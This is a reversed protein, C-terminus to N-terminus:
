SLGFAPAFNNFDNNHLKIDPNPSNKGVFQARTLGGCSIGCLGAFPETAGGSPAGALGRREWPVGFWEWHIGYNLTLNRGAKWTDKFFWSAENTYWARDKMYVGQGWYSFIPDTPKIVDFAQTIRHVSGSLDTLLDRALTQNNGTLDPIAINDIDRVPVGGPGLEVMPTMHAENGSRSNAARWEAGVRFSHAGREWSVTDAFTYQPSISYRTSSRGTWSTFNAPFLRTVPRYPLGNLKPLIDFAAQGKEGVVGAPDEFERGVYHPDWTYLKTDKYGVRLENVVTPSFTSVLSTALVTPWRYHAGYYHGQGLDPWNPIGAQESNDINREWTYIFSFGHDPTFHHDLRANFQDRNVKDFTGQGDSVDLGYIRRTWRHGATNLGDGITYDNPPPMRSLLVNQIFGTPDYGPRFPDRNFVSFPTLDGTANAPRVPNGTFDVTPRLSIANQNDAGPFFRFIGQRAPATLVMGVFEQKEVNRQGEVLVFFFTKNKRIPGGLRAGWQNRNEYNKNVGRFNNFWNAADLASNRNTWFVSGRFQNTGSRTVLQVQGAGRGAEADAPATIIRMEEVLDPSIYANSYAGHTYRGDSVVMGDRTTNVASLRGGAFYGAREGGQPGTGGSTALLEMVNRNALPLERVRYESLVTGVSASTTAILTDAAVTVEVAQAVASVLLTFNLRVQQAFGLTVGEYTQTQFGSLEAGVRYTGTQLSPFNYAGAESTIVTNVIGTGVNTATITVGPILAGTADSVTGGVTANSTQAFTHVPLAFYLLTVAAVLVQRM